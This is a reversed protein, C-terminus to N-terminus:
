LFDFYRWKFFYKRFIIWCIFLKRHLLFTFDLLWKKTVGGIKLMEDIYFTEDTYKHTYIYLLHFLKGLYNGTRETNRNDVAEVLKRKEKCMYVYYMYLNIGKTEILWFIRFPAYLPGMTIRCVKTDNKEDEYEDDVDMSLFEHIM